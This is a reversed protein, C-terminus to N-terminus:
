ITYRPIGQYLMLGYSARWLIVRSIVFIINLIKKQRKSKSMYKGQLKWIFNTIVTDRGTKRWFYMDLKSILQFVIKNIYAHIHIFFIIVKGCLTIVIIGVIVITVFWDGFTIKWSLYSIILVSEFVPTIWNSINKERALKKTDKIRQIYNTFYNMKGFQLKRIM